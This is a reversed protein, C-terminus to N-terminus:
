ATAGAASDVHAASSGAKFGLWAELYLATISFQRNPGSYGARMRELAAQFPKREVVGLEALV